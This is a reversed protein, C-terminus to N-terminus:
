AEETKERALEKSTQLRDLVGFYQMKKLGEYGFKELLRYDDPTAEPKKVSPPLVDHIIAGNEGIKYGGLVVLPKKTDRAIFPKINKKM